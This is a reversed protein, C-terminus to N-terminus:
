KSIDLSILPQLRWWISHQSFQKIFLDSDRRHTMTSIIKTKLKLSSNFMDFFLPFKWFFILDESLFPIFSNNEYCSSWLSFTWFFPFLIIDTLSYKRECYGAAHVFTWKSMKWISISLRFRGRWLWTVLTPSLKCLQFLHSFSSLQAQVKM